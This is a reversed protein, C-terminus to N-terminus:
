IYKRKNRLELSQSSHLEKMFKKALKKYSERSRKYNELYEKLIFLM